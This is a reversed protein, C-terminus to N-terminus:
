MQLLTYIFVLNRHTIFIECHATPKQKESTTELQFVSRIKRMQNLSFWCYMTLVNHLTNFLMLKCIVFNCFCFIEKIEIYEIQLFFNYSLLFFHEIPEFLALGTNSKNQTKCNHLMHCAHVWLKASVAIGDDGYSHM